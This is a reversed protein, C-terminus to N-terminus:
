RETELEDIEMRTRLAAVGQSTLARVTGEACRMALATDRVSLDAFYRLVIAERQRAPLAGVAARVAISGAVDEDGPHRDVLMPAHRRAVRVRRLWSRSLNLGTRHVWAEPSASSSVTEWSQCARALTEQALDEAEARSFGRFGFAGVLRPYMSGLFSAQDGVGAEPHDSQVTRWEIEAITM